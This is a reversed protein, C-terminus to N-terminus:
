ELKVGLLTEIQEKKIRKSWVNDQLLMVQEYTEEEQFYGKSYHELWMTKTPYLAFKNCVLPILTLAEDAISCGSNDPLESVIVVATDFTIKYIRLRCQCETKAIESHWTFMIDISLVAPSKSVMLQRMGKHIM